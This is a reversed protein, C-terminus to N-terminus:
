DNPLLSLIRERYARDQTALNDAIAPSICLFRYYPIDDEYMTNYVTYKELLKVWGYSEAYFWIDKGLFKDLLRDNAPDAQYKWLGSTHAYIKM